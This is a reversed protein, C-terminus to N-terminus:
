IERDGMPSVISVIFPSDWHSEWPVLRRIAKYFRSSVPLRETIVISGDNRPYRVETRFPIGSTKRGAAFRKAQKKSQRKNM